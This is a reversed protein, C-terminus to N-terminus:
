SERIFARQLFLLLMSGLVAIVLSQLNFGSINVGFVVGSLLGGLMAGLIGLVIAGLLGGKSPAPDIINALIGAVSGFVIWSIINM